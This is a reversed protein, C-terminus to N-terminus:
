VKNTSCFVVASDNLRAAELINFTGLANIEFDTRADTLSTTVAVQAATHIITDVSDSASRVNNFDRVDGM